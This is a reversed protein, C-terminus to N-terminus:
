HSLKGPASGAFGHPAQSHGAIRNYTSVASKRL